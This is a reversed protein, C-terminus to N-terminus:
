TSVVQHNQQRAQASSLLTAAISAPLLPGLLDATTAVFENINNSADSSGTIIVVEGTRALPVAVEAALKPLADLVIGLKAADNFEGFAQAMKDLSEAEATGQAELTVANASGILRIGEATAKAEM